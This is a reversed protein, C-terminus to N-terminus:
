RAKHLSDPAAPRVQGTAKRPQSSTIEYDTVASTLGAVSALTIGGLLAGTLAGDATKELPVLWEDMTAPNEQGSSGAGVLAGIFGGVLVGGFFGALPTGVNRAPQILKVSDLPISLLPSPSDKRLLLSGSYLAILKGSETRGDVTRVTVQRSLLDRQAGNIWKGQENLDVQHTVACGMFFFAVGGILLLTRWNEAINGPLRATGM